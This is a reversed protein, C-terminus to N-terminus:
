TCRVHRKPDNGFTYARSFEEGAMTKCIRQYTSYEAIPHAVKRADDELGIDRLCEVYTNTLNLIIFQSPYTDVLHLWIQIIRELLKLPQPSM